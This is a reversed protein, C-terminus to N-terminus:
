NPDSIKQPDNILFHYYLIKKKINVYGYGHAFRRLHYMKKTIDKGNEYILLRKEDVEKSSLLIVNTSDFFRIKTSTDKHTVVIYFDGFQTPNKHLILNERTCSSLSLVSFVVILYVIKM